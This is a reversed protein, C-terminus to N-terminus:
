RVTVTISQQSGIPIHGKDVVKITIVHEGSSLKPLMYVGKTDHVGPGRKDDVWVHFHDGASGPIVEYILRYEENAEIQTHDGPAVIKISTMEASALSGVLSLAVAPLLIQSRNM